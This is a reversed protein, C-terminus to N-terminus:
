FGPANGHPHGRAVQCSLLRRLTVLIHLCHHLRALRRPEAALHGAQAGHRHHFASCAAAAPLSTRLQASRLWQLQSSNARKCGVGGLGLMCQEVLQEHLSGGEVGVGVGVGVRLAAM